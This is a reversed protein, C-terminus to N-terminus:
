LSRAEVQITRSGLVEQSVTKSSTFIICILISAFLTLIIVFLSLVMSSGHQTSITLLNTHVKNEPLQQYRISM